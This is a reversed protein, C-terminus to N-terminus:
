QPVHIIRPTLPVCSVYQQENNTEKIEESKEIPLLNNNSNTNSDTIQIKVDPCVFSINEKPHPFILNQGDSFIGQRKEYQEFLDFNWKPSHNTAKFNKSTFFTQQDGIKNRFLDIKIVKKTEDKERKEESPPKEFIVVNSNKMKEYVLLELM